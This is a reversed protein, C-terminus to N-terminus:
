IEEWLLCSLEPERESSCAAGPYIRQQHEFAKPAVRDLKSAKQRSCGGASASRKPALKTKKM